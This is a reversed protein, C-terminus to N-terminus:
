PQRTCNTIALNPMNKVQLFLTNIRRQLNLNERHQEEDGTEDDKQKEKHQQQRKQRRKQMKSVM